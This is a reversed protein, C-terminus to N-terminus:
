RYKWNRDKGETIWAVAEAIRRDRTEPRKAASIWEVYDRVKAPTFAAWHRAADPNAAIAETLVPPTEPPTRVPRRAKPAGAAPGADIRAMGEKLLGAFVAEPPLDDMRTVRGFQGMGESAADTGMMDRGRWLGFAVHARFAAMHCLPRGRHLFFPMGWKIAEENDPVHRHVLARLHDLIPRAFDAGAAIYADVRPDTAAM